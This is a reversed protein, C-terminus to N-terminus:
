RLRLILSEAQPIYTILPTQKPYTKTLQKFLKVAQSETAAAFIKGAIIVIQKGRYRPERYARAVLQESPRKAM